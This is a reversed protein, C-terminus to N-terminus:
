ARVRRFLAVAWHARRVSPLVRWGFRGLRMATATRESTARRVGALASTGPPEARYGCQPCISDPPYFGRQRRVWRFAPRLVGSLIPVRTDVTRFETCEFRDFLSRIAAEDYRRMHYHPNFECGCYPCRVRLRSERFPVSVVLFRAAVRQLEGLVQEYVGFPLHEIVELASVVDWSRDAYPLSEASGHGIPAQCVKLDIAAQAREHGALALGPRRSELLSLFAGNGAGVDLLSAADGPILELTTTFRGLEAPNGLYREPAWLAPNEYRLSESM